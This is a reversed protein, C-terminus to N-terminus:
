NILRGKNDILFYMGDLQASFIGESHWSIDDWKAPIIIKGTKDSIVGVKENITFKSYGSPTSSYYETENDDNRFVEEINIREINDFAYESLKTRGDFALLYQSNTKYESVIFGQDTVSLYGYEPDLVIHFLSDALGKKDGIEILYYGYETKTINDYLPKLVMKNKIDILGLRQTKAEPILSYGDEFGFDQGKYIKHDYNYQPKIVYNGKADIFGLKNNECVAALGSKDDFNWAFDFRDAPITIQGTNVNIFGMKKNNEFIVLTDDTFFSIEEINDVRPSVPKGTAISQLCVKGDKYSVLIFKESFTSTTCVGHNKKYKNVFIIVGIAILLIMLVVLM